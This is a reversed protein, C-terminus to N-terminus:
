QLAPLIQILEMTEGSNSVILVVDEKAIMGQDRHTAEGPHVFHSPTETSAM